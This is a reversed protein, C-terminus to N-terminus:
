ISGLFDFLHFGRSFGADSGAYRCVPEMVFGDQFEIVSGEPFLVGKGADIAAGAGIDAGGAPTKVYLIFNRAFGSDPHSVPVGAHGRQEGKVRGAMVRSGLFMLPEPLAKHVFQFIVHIFVIVADLTDPAASTDAETRDINIYSADTVFHVVKVGVGADTFHCRCLSPPLRAFDM